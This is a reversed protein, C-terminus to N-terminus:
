RNFLSNLGWKQNLLVDYITYEFSDLAFGLGTTLNSQPDIDVLLVKFGLQALEAGLNLTTTTKGSGGKQLACTITFSMYKGKISLHILAWDFLYIDSPNAVQRYPEKLYEERIKILVEERTLNKKEM